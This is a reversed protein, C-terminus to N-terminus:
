WIEKFVIRGRISYGRSYHACTSAFRSLLTGGQIIPAGQFSRVYFQGGRWKSTEWCNFQLIFDTKFDTSDTNTYHGIIILLMM